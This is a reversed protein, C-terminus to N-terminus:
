YIKCLDPEKQIPLQGDYVTGKLHDTGIHNYHSTSGRKCVDEMLLDSNTLVKAVKTSHFVYIPKMHVFTILLM